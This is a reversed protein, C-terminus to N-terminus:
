DLGESADGSNYVEQLRFVDGPCRVLLVHGIITELTELSNSGKWEYQRVRRAAESRRVVGVSRRFAIDIIHALM